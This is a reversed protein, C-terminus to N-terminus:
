LECAGIYCWQDNNKQWVVVFPMHMTIEFLKWFYVRISVEDPTLESM